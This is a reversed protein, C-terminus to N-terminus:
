FESQDTSIIPMCLVDDSVELTDDGLLWKAMWDLSDQIWLFGSAWLMRMFIEPATLFTKETQDDWDTLRVVLHAVWLSIGLVMTSVVLGLVIWANRRLEQTMVSKLLSALFVLLPTIVLGNVVALQLVLGFLYCILAMKKIHEDPKTLLKIELAIGAGDIAAEPCLVVVAIVIWWKTIWKLQRESFAAFDQVSKMLLVYGLMQVYNDVYGAILIKNTLPTDMYLCPVAAFHVLFCIRFFLRSWYKRISLVGKDFATMAIRIIVYLIQIGSLVTLGIWFGQHVAETKTM